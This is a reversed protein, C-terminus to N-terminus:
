RNLNFIAKQRMRSTDDDVRSNGTHTTASCRVLLDRTCPDNEASDAFVRRLAPAFLLHHLLQISPMFLVEAFILPQPPADLDDILNRFRWGPFDKTANKLILVLLFDLFPCSLALVLCLSLELSLCPDKTSNFIIKVIGDFTYEQNVISILPICHFLKLQKHILPM